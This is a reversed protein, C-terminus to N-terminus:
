DIPSQFGCGNAATHARRYPLGYREMLISEFREHNILDIDSQLHTGEELCRWANVIELDADFPRVGDDLQHVNIFLHDKARRVAGFGVQAADDTLLVDGTEFSPTNHLGRIVGPTVCM